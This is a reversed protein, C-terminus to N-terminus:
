TGSRLIQATQRKIRLDPTRLAPVGDAASLLRAAEQLAPVEIKWTFLQRLAQVAM